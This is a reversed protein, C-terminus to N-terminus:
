GGFSLLFQADSVAIVSKLVFVRGYMCFYKSQTGTTTEIATTTTYPSQTSIPSTVLCDRNLVFQTVGPSYFAIALDDDNNHLTCGVPTLDFAVCSTSMLCETM